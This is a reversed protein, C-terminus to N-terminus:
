WAEFHCAASDGGSRNIEELIVSAETVSMGGGGYEVPILASLWGLDTMEAVFEEPYKGEKELSRWYVGDYKKCVDRVANRIDNLNEAQQNMPM